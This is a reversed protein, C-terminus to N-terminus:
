KRRKFVNNWIRILLVPEGIDIVSFYPNELILERHYMSKTEDEYYKPLKLEINGFTKKYLKLLEIAEDIKM